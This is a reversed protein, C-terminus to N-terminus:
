FIIGMHMANGELLGGVRKEILATRQAGTTTGNSAAEPARFNGQSECCCLM